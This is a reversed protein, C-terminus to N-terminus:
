RLSFRLGEGVDVTEHGSADIALREVRGSALNEVYCEFRGQTLEPAHWVDALYSLYPQLKLVLRRPAPSALPLAECLQRLEVGGAIARTLLGFFADDGGNPVSVSGEQSTFTCARRAPLSHVNRWVTLVGDAFGQHSVEQAEERLFSEIAQKENFHMNSM